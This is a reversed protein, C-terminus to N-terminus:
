ILGSSTQNGKANGARGSYNINPNRNFSPAKLNTTKAPGSKSQGISGRFSGPGTNLKNFKQQQRIQNLGQTAQKTIGLDFRSRVPSSKSNAFAQSGMTREVIFEEYTKM